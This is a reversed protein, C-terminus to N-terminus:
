LTKELIFEGTFLLHPRFRIIKDPDSMFRFEVDQGKESSRYIDPFNQM